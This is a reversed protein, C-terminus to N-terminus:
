QGAVQEEAQIGADATEDDAGERWHKQERQHPWLSRLAGLCASGLPIRHRM